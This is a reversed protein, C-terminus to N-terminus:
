GLIRTQVLRDITGILLAGRGLGQFSGDAGTGHRHVGVPDLKQGEHAGILLAVAHRGEVGVALGAVSRGEAAGGAAAHHVLQGVALAIGIGDRLRALGAHLDGALLGHVALTQFVGHFGADGM